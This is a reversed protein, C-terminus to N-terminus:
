KGKVAFQNVTIFEGVVYGIVGSCVIHLVTWFSAAQAAYNWQM